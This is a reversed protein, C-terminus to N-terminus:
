RQKDKSEYRKVRDALQKPLLELSEKVLDSNGHEIFSDPYEFSKIVVDLGYEDKFESLASGVGGIKASDSFIYWRQTKKSLAILFEKDLPKVFILDVLNVDYGLEQMCKYAVEVGTGYGIFAVESDSECLLESKAFKIKKAKYPLEEFSGRPYRFAIPSPFDKSFEVINELMKADRPALLTMNPVARLYSIDFAGQHTEGDEGVIGARDIAFKIPLNLICSDHIVQDYARQLFTSYIAVYPKFGEKAM